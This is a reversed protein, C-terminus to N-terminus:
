EENNTEEKKATNNKAGCSIGRPNFCLNCSICASKTIVGERYKKVLQPERIFPRSMSILDVRAKKIIDEMVAFTRFGGLGMVPINVAQKIRVANNVFYGEEEERRLGKWVSGKGAEAMGGSVEIGAIGDRELWRAVQLSDDIELGGKIFDTANLKVIQPFDPGCVNVIGHIIEEILRYRNKSSGGYEDKRRNTHPSIFGSLLYGHAIHLQIGDFGADRARRAGEIFAKKVDEIDETRMKKPPGEFNPDAVASPALPEAGSLKKKTQRGAHSLQLFVKSDHRHVAEPIKKLGDLFRDDFVAIQRPSAQGAPHVFAHGTIILGTEGEALNELLAVMRETVRGDREAMFDHTASRVFRNPIVIRGLRVPSFLISESSM